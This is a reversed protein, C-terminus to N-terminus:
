KADPANTNTPTPLTAQRLGARLRAELERTQALSRRSPPYKEIAALGALFDAAAGTRQGAQLRIEGRLALFSESPFFKRARELRELAAAFNGRGREFEIAPLALSPTEGLRKMGEDLGALAEGAKGDAVQAHARELYLDPLPAGPGALARSFDAVAAALQKLKVGCRARIVFADPNNTDAQLCATAASGAETFKEQDFYIRARELMGAPWGPKRQEAETVDALAPDFEGHRRRLDARELWLVANTPDVALRGTLEQIREHLDGHAKATTQTVFLISAILM